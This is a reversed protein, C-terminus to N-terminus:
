ENFFGLNSGSLTVGFGESCESFDLFHEFFFLDWFELCNWVHGFLELCFWGILLSDLFVFHECFVSFVYFLLCDM